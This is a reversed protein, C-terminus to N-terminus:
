RLSPAVALSSHITYTGVKGDPGSVMRAMIEEFVTAIFGGHAVGPWGSLGGGIWLVAVMEQTEANWFARQVGVGRTGSMVGLIGKSGDEDKGLNIDLELWGKYASIKRGGGSESRLGPGSKLATDSHLNYSQARLSQVIELNDIDRNLSALILEDERSGPEPLGLPGAFQRAGLGTTIGLGLISAYWVYSWRIRSQLPLPLNNPFANRSLRSSRFPPSRFLYRIRSM